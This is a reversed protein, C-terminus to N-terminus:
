LTWTWGLGGLPKVYLELCAKACFISLPLTWGRKERELTAFSSGFDGLIGAKAKIKGKQSNGTSPLNLSNSTSSPFFFSALVAARRNLTGLLCWGAGQYCEASGVQLAPLCEHQSPLATHSLPSFIFDECYHSGLQVM